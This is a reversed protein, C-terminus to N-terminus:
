ENSDVVRLISSDICNLTPSKNIMWLPPSQHELRTAISFTPVAALHNIGVVVSEDAIVVLGIRVVHAGLDLFGDLVDILEFQLELFPPPRIM